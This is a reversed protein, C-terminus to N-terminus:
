GLSLFPGQFVMKNMEKMWLLDTVSCWELYFKQGRKLSKWHCPCALELAIKKRISLAELQRILM